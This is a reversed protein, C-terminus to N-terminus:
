LGARLRQALLQFARHGVMAVRAQAPAAEAVAFTRWRTASMTAAAVLQDTSAGPLDLVAAPDAAAALRTLEREMVEPLEVAGTSVLHTAELVRLRHYAPERLVSEVADRLLAHDAPPETRAAIRELESVARGAKLADARSRFTRDITRRVRGLGGATALLRVLGGSSLGPDAALASVAYGVGFLDLKALLLERHERPVPCDRSLFLDASALLVLQGAPSLGALARLAACDDATLRGAETTEALLGNVPVVDAVVRRLLGAQEAALPEAVPWPDAAGTVLKDVKSFLALSNVPGSALRTSVARFAALAAVDDARVSQTFVYVIAEAAALAGASDADLDADLPAGEATLYREAVAGAAGTSALGPTDVVTLDRLRDSALTVDLFAVEAAPVGLRRPIMGSGDLPLSARSGDRRVVEVRDLDGHRLQTVVRTCEGADTPAVRRGILANVLTSKGAKLRGAIAVRLPEDLRRRVRRVRAGVAPTAQAAIRDCLAAIRASLPGATPVTLRGV